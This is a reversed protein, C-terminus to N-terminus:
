IGKYRTGVHPIRHDNMMFYIYPIIYLKDFENLNGGLFHLVLNGLPAQPHTFAFMYLFHKLLSKLSNNLFYHKLHDWRLVVSPTGPPGWGEIEQFHPM